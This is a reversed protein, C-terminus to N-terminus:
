PCAAASAAIGSDRGQVQGPGFADYTLPGGGLAARVLFWIGEGPTPDAVYSTSTAPLDNVVCALTATTFDGGSSRLATLDGSVVDYGLAGDVPTWVLDALGLTLEIMECEDPVANVNADQSTMAAIDCSDHLGNGNCDAECEDPIGNGNCDLSTGNRIDTSDNVGNGNCDAPPALCIQPMGALAMVFAALGTGVGTM